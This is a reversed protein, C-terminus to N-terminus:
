REIDGLLRREFRADAARVIVDIVAEFGLACTDLTVDYVDADTWDLGAVARIFRSRERDSDRVMKAAANTDALSHVQKARDIRWAEPAHLFVSLVCTRGRLTQAAGRGVIVTPEAAIQGEVIRQIIRKEIEFLEGEYSADSSSAVYGAEPAGLALTHGLRAWWSANPEIKEDPDHQRLYESAERLMQRDIYRLNLRDAIQRGIYSGGSGRQRSIAVTKSTHTM